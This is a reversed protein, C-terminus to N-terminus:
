LLYFLGSEEVCVFAVALGCVAHVDGVDSLLCCIVKLHRQSLM